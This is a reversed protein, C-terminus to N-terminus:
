ETDPKWVTAGTEPCLYLRGKPKLEREASKLPTVNRRPKADNVRRTEEVAEAISRDFRRQVRNYM